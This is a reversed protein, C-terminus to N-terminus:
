HRLTVSNCVNANGQESFEAGSFFEDDEHANTPASEYQPQAFSAPEEVSVFQVDKRKVTYSKRVAGDEIFEVKYAKVVWASARRAQIVSLVKGTVRATKWTVPWASKAYLVGFSLAPCSVYDGEAIERASCLFRVSFIV